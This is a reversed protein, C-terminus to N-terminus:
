ITSIFELFCEPVKTLAESVAIEYTVGSTFLGDLLRVNARNFEGFIRVTQAVGENAARHSRSYPCSRDCSHPLVAPEDSALSGPSGNACSETEQHSCDNPNQYWSVARDVVGPGALHSTISLEM